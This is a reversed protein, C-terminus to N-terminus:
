YRKLQERWRAAEHAGGRKGVEVLVAELFEPHVRVPYLHFWPYRDFQSLAELFSHAYGTQAIYEGMEGRDDESLLDYLAV